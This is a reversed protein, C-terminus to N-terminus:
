LLAELRTAHPAVEQAGAPRSAPDILAAGAVDSPRFRRAGLDHSVREKARSLDGHVVREIWEILAAGIERQWALDEDTLERWRSADLLRVGASRLVQLVFTACTFAADPDDLEGTGESFRAETAGFGYAPGGLRSDYRASIRRALVRLLTEVAPDLWLSVIVCPRAGAESARLEDLAEDRLVRHWALHLVQERQPSNRGLGVHLQRPQSRLLVIGFAATGVVGAGAIRTAPAADTM